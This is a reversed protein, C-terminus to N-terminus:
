CTWTLLPFHYFKQQISPQEPSHPEATAQLRSMLYFKGWFGRVYSIHIVLGCGQEKRHVLASGQSRIIGRLSPQKVHVRLFAEHCFILNNPACQCITPSSIQIESGEMGLQAAFTPLQWLRIGFSMSDKPIYSDLSKNTGM